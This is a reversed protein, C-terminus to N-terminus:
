KRSRSKPIGGNKNNIKLGKHIKAMSRTHRVEENNLPSKNVSSNRRNRLRNSINGNRYHSTPYNEKRSHSNSIRNARSSKTRMMKNNEHYNVNNSRLNGKKKNIYTSFCKKQEIEANLDKIQKDISFITKEFEKDMKDAQNELKQSLETLKEVGAKPPRGRNRTEPTRKRKGNSYVKQKRLKSCLQDIEKYLPKLKSELYAIKAKICKKTLM